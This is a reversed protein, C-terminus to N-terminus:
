SLIDLIIKLIQKELLQEDLQTVLCVYKPNKVRRYVCKQRGFNDPSHETVGSSKTNGLESFLQSIPINSTGKSEYKTLNYPNDNLCPIHPPYLLRYENHLLEYQILKLAPFVTELSLHLYFQLNRPTASSGGDWVGWSNKSHVM